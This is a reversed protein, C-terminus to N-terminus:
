KKKQWYWHDHRPKFYKDSIWIKEKFKNGCNLEILKKIPWKEVYAARIFKPPIVSNLLIEAQPNTTYYSPLQLYKRLSEPPSEIDIDQFMKNWGQITKDGTIASAANNHFFVCPCQTIIEPDILIVSWNKGMQKRKLYFMKYNPFSVSICNSKLLHDLRYDDPFVSQIVNCLPKKELYNRPILGYKLIGSVNFAPTFHVLWKIKRKTIEEIISSRDESVRLFLNEIFLNVFDDSTHGSEATGDYVLKEVTQFINNWNRKM